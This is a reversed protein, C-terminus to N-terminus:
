TPRSSAWSPAVRGSSRRIMALTTGVPAFTATWSGVPSDVRWPGALGDGLPQCNSGCEDGDVINGDDCSENGAIIGDGCITTCGSPAPGTCVWGPDVGVLSLATTATTNRVAEACTDLLNSINSVEGEVDCTWNLDARTYKITLKRECKSYDPEKGTKVAKADEKLLCEAHGGATKWKFASCKQADTAASAPTTIFLFAAIIALLIRKM